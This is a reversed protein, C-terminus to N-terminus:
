ADEKARRRNIVRIVAAKIAMSDLHSAYYGARWARHQDTGSKYPNPSM